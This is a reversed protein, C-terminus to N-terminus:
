LLVSCHTIGYYHFCELAHRDIQEGSVVITADRQAIEVGIQRRLVSLNEDYPGFLAAMDQMSAVEIKQSIIAEAM